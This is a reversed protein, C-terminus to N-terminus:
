KPLPEAAKLDLHNFRACCLMQEPLEDDSVGELTIGIEIVMTPVLSLMSDLGKKNKQQHKFTTKNEAPPFFSGTAHILEHLM